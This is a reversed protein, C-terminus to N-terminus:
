ANRRRRRVVTGLGVLGTGVLLLSAPEPTTTVGCTADGGVITGTSSIKLSCATGNVDQLHLWAFAGTGPTGTFSLQVTGGQDVAGNLGNTTSACLQFTAQNGLGGCSNLNSDIQWGTSPLVVSGGTLSTYGGIGVDTLLGTSTSTNYTVAFSNTGFTFTFCFNFSGTTCAAHAQQAPVFALAGAVATAQLLRKLM